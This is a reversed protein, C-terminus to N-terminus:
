GGQVVVRQRARALVLGALAFLALAWGAQTALGTLLEAGTRRELAIDVPIQLLSPFPTARAGVAVPDPLVSLPLIMGSAVNSVAIYVSSLGRADTTWFAAAEVMLRLPFSVAWALAVSAAFLPVTAARHPVAIGFVLSGFVFPALFRFGLAQLARGADDAAWALLPSVPRALDVAVDGTRVRLDVRAGTGGLLALVALLGQTLWSYTSLEARDYGGITGGAADAAAFLISLKIIGFVTNTSAGALVALRYSATRRFGAAVLRGIVTPTSLTGRRAATGGAVSVPM